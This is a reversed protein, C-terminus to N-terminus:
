VWYGWAVIFAVFPGFALRTYAFPGGAEPLDRALRAFVFALLMAGIGTFLWAPVSNMGLPALAVPLMFIGTGIINGVVLATCMWPGMMDARPKSETMRAGLRVSRSHKRTALRTSHAH